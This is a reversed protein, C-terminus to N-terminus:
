APCAPTRARAPALIRAAGHCAPLATALLLLADNEARRTPVPVGSRALRHRAWLAFPAVILPATGVGPTYSRLAASQALHTVAHWGFGTLAAQYFRGTGGTRAGNWAAGAMIAGMLGIAITVQAPSTEAHRWVRDPVRPFHHHLRGPLTRSFRSMTLLEELDHLAWAGLLGWTAAAPPRHPTTGTM